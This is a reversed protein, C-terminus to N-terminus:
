SAGSIEFRIGMQELKDPLNDYGRMITRLGGITTKGEAALAAVMLAAGGRIDTASIEAGTFTQPGEIRVEGEEVTIKGGMKKLEEVYAFRKPYRYDIIRSNGDAQAALVTFFPQMDTIVGPYVGCAVVFPNIYHKYHDSHNIYLAGSGTYFNLGIDRLHIMPIEIHSFPVDHIILEGKTVAAAIIWSVAEIRDPTVTHSTGNLHKVGEIEICTNGKIQIKAGMKQLMIILDYVEPSIYANFISTKGHAMVGCLLANETGGITHFPFRIEAGNLGSSELKIFSEEETVECGMLEWIKEHLDYKREGIPCGGPYPIRAVGNHRLQGAALLYTTRITTDYSELINGIKEAQIRVEGPHLDVSVGLERLIHLKNKMDELTSPFNCIQVEEDTLMSAAILCIASNKAGSITVAGRLTQPGDIILKEDLEQKPFHSVTVQSGGLGDLKIHQRYSWIPDRFEAAGDVLKCHM